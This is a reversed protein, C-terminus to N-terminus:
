SKQVVGANTFPSFTVAGLSNLALSTIDRNGRRGGAMSASSDEYMSDYRDISPGFSRLQYELWRISM